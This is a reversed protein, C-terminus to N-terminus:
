HTYGVSSHSRMTLVYQVYQDSGSLLNYGEKSNPEYDLETSFFTAPLCFEIFGVDNSCRLCVIAYICARGSFCSRSEMRRTASRDKPHQHM